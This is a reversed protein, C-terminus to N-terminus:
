SSRGSKADTQRAHHRGPGLTGEGRGGTSHAADPTAALPLGMNYPKRSGRSIYPSSPPNLPLLLLLLTQHACRQRDTGRRSLSVASPTFSSQELPLPLITLPRQHGRASTHSSTSNHQASSSYLSICLTWPTLLPPRFHTCTMSFPLASPTCQLKHFPHHISLALSSPLRLFSDKPPCM